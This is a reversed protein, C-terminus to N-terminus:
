QGLVNGGFRWFRENEEDTALTQTMQQSQFFVVIFTDDRRKV